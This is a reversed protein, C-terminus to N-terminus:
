LERGAKFEGWRLTVAAGISAFPEFPLRSPPDQSEFRTLSESSHESALEAAMMGTYTGRAAGLGNQCGAAFLGPEVEGFASTGNRSLCLLGGWRHEMEVDRLNPFRAAFSRDHARGTKEVARTDAHRSPSWTVGNRIVLRAGEPTSIKRVTTGMPDAPTFAWVPNGGLQREEDGTLARTMSGYLYIHMLRRKFFGFSELHGNVTLIVKPTNVGGKPTTATWRGGDHKLDLVPSNEFIKVTQSRLGAAMERAFLAPQLMATGPTYLGSQYYDSGCVDRMQVGDLLEHSENMDTLHKAYDRNHRTGKETAAANIKGSRVLTDPSFGYEMAAEEAFQIAARNEAAETRDKEIAGAYDESVLNHPLDIMFGSNRGVPGEAIKQADLLIISDIPNLQRLRRAAALGAFGAGIILWDANETNEVHPYDRGPPLISDWAAPGPNTPQHTVKV